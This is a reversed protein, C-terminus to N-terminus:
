RLRFAQVRYVLMQMSPLSAAPANHNWGGVALNVLMMMPTNLGPNSRRDVEVDDVYWIIRSATWLVGYTHPRTVDSVKVADTSFPYGGHSDPWHLSCYIKSPDNGLFEMVDIEGNHQATTVKPDFPANLWFAPWAGPVAPLAAEMEFYGYLQTFSASTTLLGSTYAKGGTRADSTANNKQATIALAGKRIQFPDVNDYAQDSYVEYEGDLTRSSPNTPWGFDYSTKWRGHPNKDADYLDLSAFNESFTPILQSRDLRDGNMAEARLPALALALVALGVLISFRAM